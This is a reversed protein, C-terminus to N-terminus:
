AACDDTVNSWRPRSHISCRPPWAQPALILYGFESTQGGPVTAGAFRRFHMNEVSLFPLGLVDPGFQRKVVEWARFGDLSLLVHSSTLEELGADAVGAAQMLADMEADPIISECLFVFEQDNNAVFCDGALLGESNLMMTHLARGFRIKPVNGALLADLFDLGKDEPLRVLPRLLFGDARRCRAGRHIRGETRCDPFSRSEMVSASHHVLPPRKERLLSTRM